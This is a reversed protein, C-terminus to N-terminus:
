AWDSPETDIGSEIGALRDLDMFLYRELTGNADSGGPGGDLEVPEADTAADSSTPGGDLEVPWDTASCSNVLEPAALLPAAGAAGSGKAAGM